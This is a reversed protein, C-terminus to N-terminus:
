PAGRHAPFLFVQRSHAWAARCANDTLASPGLDRCRRLTQALPGVPSTEVSRGPPAPKTAALAVAAGSVLCLLLPRGRM